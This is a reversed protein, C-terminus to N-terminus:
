LRNVERQKRTSWSRWRRPHIAQTSTIPSKGKRKVKKQGGEQAGVALTASLPKSWDMVTAIGSEGVCAACSSAGVTKTRSDGSENRDSWQKKMLRSRISAASLRVFPTGDKRSKLQKLEGQDRNSRTM